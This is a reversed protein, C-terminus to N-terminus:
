LTKDLPRPQYAPNPLLIESWLYDGREIAMEFLEGDGHIFADCVVANYARALKAKRHSLLTLAIRKWSPIQMVKDVFISREYSGFLYGSRLAGSKDTSSTSKNSM